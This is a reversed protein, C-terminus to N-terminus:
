PHKSKYDQLKKSMSRGMAMAVRLRYRVDEDTVMLYISRLQGCITGEMRKESVMYEHSVPEPPPKKM